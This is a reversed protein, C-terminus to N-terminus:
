EELFKLVAETFEQTEEIDPFHASEKFLLLSSNPLESHILNSIPVGTNRDHIGTIILAQHHIQSLRNILPIEMPYEQLTKLMLGTNTLESEEWFFRNLDAFQQNQFLLRDVTMSDAQNWIEDYLESVSLGQNILDNMKLLLHTDAVTAFGAIQVLKGLVLDRLSPASLVVRDIIKPQSYALELALEGGFSYGLLDVKEIGLWMRIENFDSLLQDWKYDTDGSPMDSRGCGRQEYYVVTRAKSLHLGTTREFTYHNGGPGGHLVILPKTHHEAGEIKIWHKISNIDAYYEGNARIL